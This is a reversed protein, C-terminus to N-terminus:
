QASVEVLCDYFIPGGGMDTAAPSTV